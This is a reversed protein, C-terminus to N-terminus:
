GCVKSLNCFFKIEYVLYVLLRSYDCYLYVGRRGKKFYLLYLFFCFSLGMELKMENYLFIKKNFLFMVENGM